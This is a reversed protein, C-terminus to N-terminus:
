PPRLPNRPGPYLFHKAYKKAKPQKRSRKRNQQTQHQFTSPQPTNNNSTRDKTEKLPNVFAPPLAEKLKKPIERDIHNEQIFRSYLCASQDPSLNHGALHHDVQSLISELHAKEVELALNNNTIVRELHKFFITEFEKNFQETISPLHNVTTLVQPRYAKPITKHTMMKQQQQLTHKIKKTQSFHSSYEQSLETIVHKITEFSMISEKETVFSSDIIIIINMIINFQM